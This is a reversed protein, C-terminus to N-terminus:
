AERLVLMYFWAAIGGVIGMFALTGFFLTKADGKDTGDEYDIKWAFKLFLALVSIPLLAMLGTPLLFYMSDNFFSSIYYVVLLIYPISVIAFPIM